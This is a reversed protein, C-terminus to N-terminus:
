KIIKFGAPPAALLQQRQQVRELWAESTPAVDPLRVVFHGIEGKLEQQSLDPIVKKLLGLAATVQSPQMKLKGDVHNQLRSILMGSRINERLERDHILRKIRAAM